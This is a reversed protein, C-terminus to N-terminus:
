EGRASRAARADGAHLHGIDPRWGLDDDLDQPEGAHSRVVHDVVEAGAVPADHDRGRAVKARAPHPDLEVGSEAHVAARGTM